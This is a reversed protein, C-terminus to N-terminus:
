QAQGNAILLAKIANNLAYSTADNTADAPLTVKGQPAAGNFGVMGTVSVDGVLDISPADITVSTAAVVDLFECQVAVSDTATIELTDCNQQIDPAESIIATPSLVTIGDDNFQIYQEPVANLVGGIYMGDSFSFSRFSGPNAQKKTAKLKSIDRSAFVCIGIDGAVPDIIIANTGGQVRCYPINNIVEHATPNGEPDIQNILPLVDVFGVPSLGGDNTCSIIQVPMCTQMKLMAQMVVFSINNFDGYTGTPKLFGPSAM